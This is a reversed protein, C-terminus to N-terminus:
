LHGIWHDADGGGAPCILTLLPNPSAWQQEFRWWFSYGQGWAPRAMFLLDGLTNTVPDILLVYIIYPAILGYM